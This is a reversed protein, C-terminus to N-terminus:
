CLEGVGLTTPMICYLVLGLAFQPPQLPIARMVFGFLPTLTLIALIGYVLGLWHGRAKGLDQSSRTALRETEAM